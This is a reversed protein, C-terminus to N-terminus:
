QSAVPLAYGWVACAPLQLSYMYAATRVPLDRREHGLLRCTPPWAIALHMLDSPVPLQLPLAVPLCAPQLAQLVARATSALPHSGCQTMCSATAVRVRVAPQTAAARGGQWYSTSAAQPWWWIRLLKCQAGQPPPPHSLCPCRDFCCSSPGVHPRGRCRPAQLWWLRSVSPARRPHPSAVPLLATLM